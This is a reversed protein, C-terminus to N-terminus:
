RGTADWGRHAQPWLAAPPGPRRSVPRWGDSQYGPFRYSTVASPGHGKHCFATCVVVLLGFHGVDTMGGVRRKRYQCWAFAVDHIVDRAAFGIFDDRGFEAYGLARDF